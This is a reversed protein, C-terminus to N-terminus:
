KKIIWKKLIESIKHFENSKDFLYNAGKELCVFRYHLEDHNTLIIIKMQPYDHRLEVLFDIGTQRVEGDEINIDLIVVDPKATNILNKASIITPANGLFELGEIENLICKMREAILSSDDVTVVKLLPM